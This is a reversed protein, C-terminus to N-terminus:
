YPFPWLRFTSLTMQWRHALGRPEFILFLLIVAGFFIQMSGAVVTGEFAPLLGGLWPTLWMVAQVLIKLFFVGLIAGTITAGGVIIMGLMWISDMITFQDTTLFGQYHGLLAGAIGGYVASLFFAVLKTRFINIGMFEAALDNDRVALLSRGVKTRMMNNTLFVIAAAFGMALYYFKLETDFVFGFFSVENAPLGDVGQTVQGGHLIVWMIIYHVVLTTVAIYFGRIKLSPIGVLIGLFGCSLAALPMTIWFTIDYHYSLMASVWGGVAMFAAQGISIQGTFGTIIQLGLVAIITIAIDIMVDLLYEGATLPFIVFTVLLLIALMTWRFGTRVMASDQVYTEDFVGCPKKLM